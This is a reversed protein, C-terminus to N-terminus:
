DHYELEAKRKLQEVARRIRGDVAGTKMGFREAIKKLSWGLRYRLRIMRRLDPDVRQLHDEIWQLRASIELETDDHHQDSTAESLETLKLPKRQRQRLWDYVVSRIVTRSWADLQSRNSIPKLSRVIKLM